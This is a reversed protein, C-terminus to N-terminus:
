PVIDRRCSAYGCGEVVLCWKCARGDIFSRGAKPTLPIFKDAQVRFTAEGPMRCRNWYKVEVTYDGSYFRIDPYLSTDASQGLYEYGGSIVDPNETITWRAMRIIDNRSDIVIRDREKGKFDFPECM